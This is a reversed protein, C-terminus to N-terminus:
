AAGLDRIEHYANDQGGVLTVNQTIGVITVVFTHNGAAPSFTIEGHALVGPGPIKNFQTVRQAGQATGQAAGDMKCYSYFGSSDAVVSALNLHHIVGIRRGAPLAISPTTMFDAGASSIQASDTTQVVHALVGFAKYWGAGLSGVLAFYQWQTNTDTTICLAGPYPVPWAADRAATSAFTPVSPSLMPQPTDLDVWLSPSVPSTPAGGSQVITDRPM